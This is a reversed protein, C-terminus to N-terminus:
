IDKISTLSQERQRELQYKLFNVVSRAGCHYDIERLSHSIDFDKPPFREELAKVFESSVIPFISELKM